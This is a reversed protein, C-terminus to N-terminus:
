PGDPLHPTARCDMRYYQFLQNSGVLTVPYIFECFQLTTHIVTKYTSSYQNTGNYNESSFYLTNILNSAVVTSFQNTSAYRWLRGNSVNTQSLDFAYLIFKTYDISDNTSVLIPYLQLATGRYLGNTIASFSTFNTGSITGVAYGKAMRIDDLMQNVARRSANTAGAKAALYQNEQFGVLNAAVLAGMVVVMLSMAILLELLTFGSFRRKQPRALDNDHLYLKM